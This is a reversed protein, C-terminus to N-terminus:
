ALVHDASITPTFMLILAIATMCQPVANGPDSDSMSDTRVVRASPAATLDRRM